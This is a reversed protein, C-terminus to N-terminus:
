LRFRRIPNLQKLRRVAIMNSRVRDEATGTQWTGGTQQGLKDGGAPGQSSMRPGTKIGFNNSLAERGM